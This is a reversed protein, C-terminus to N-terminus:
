PNVVNRPNGDVFAAVNGVVTSLLRERASKTAWSIHPTIYCNKAEFLPNDAAPPEQGLVDLGAAAIQGSGLAEALAEEDVLPGRSTNILMATPKMQELRRRNVLKETEPTLPCHLTVVDSQTFLTDLDVLTVDGDPGGPPGDTFVDHAIVKMGFARGIAATARGIRGLGVVGLTLNALEVLPYVWYCFDGCESWRGRRVTAAHDAVRQALNLIHAFTMQAVSATGYAPVNTVIIRRQRAAEIDVIDYGTASLGIYKLNALHELTADEFPVKNTIVIEADGVRDVISQEDCPTNAHVAVEGFPRLEEWSLDGPNLTSGDVIVIKM